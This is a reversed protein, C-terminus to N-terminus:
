CSLELGLHLLGLVVGGRAMFGRVGPVQKETESTTETDMRKNGVAGGCGLSVGWGRM